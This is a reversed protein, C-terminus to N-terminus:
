ERGLLIAVSPDDEVAPLMKCLAEHDAISILKWEILAALYARWAIAFREPLDGGFHDIDLQIRIRLEQATPLEIM